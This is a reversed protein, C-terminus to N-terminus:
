KIGLRPRESLPHQTNKSCCLVHYLSLTLDANTHIHRKKKREREGRKVKEPLYSPPPLPSIKFFWLPYEEWQSKYEM